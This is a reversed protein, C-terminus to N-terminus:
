ARVWGSMPRGPPRGQASAAHLQKDVFTQRWLQCGPEVRGAMVIRDMWQVDAPAALGVVANELPTDRLISHNDRFIRPVKTAQYTTYLNM